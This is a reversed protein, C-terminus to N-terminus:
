RGGELIDFRTPLSRVYPILQDQVGVGRHADAAVVGEAAREDLELL